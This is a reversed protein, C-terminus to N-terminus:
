AQSLAIRNGSPDEIISTRPKWDFDRPPHVEAAGATLARRHVDELDDVLVGFCSTGGPHGNERREITLLFFSDTKWTGFQFSSISENFEAGFVDVYFRVLKPIDDTHVTIQVPKCSTQQPVPLGKQMFQDVAATIRYLARTHNALRDRHRELVRHLASEDSGIAERVEEVPLELARLICIARAAELQDPHYRRYNTQPDVAAPTLLGIEDYYRLASISLGGRLSFIGISMLGQDNMRGM